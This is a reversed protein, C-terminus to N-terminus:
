YKSFVGSMGCTLTRHSFRGYLSVSLKGNDLFGLRINFNGTQDWGCDTASAYKFTKLKADLTLDNSSVRCMRSLVTDTVVKTKTNITLGMKAVRNFSSGGHRVYCGGDFAISVEDGNVSTKVAGECGYSDWGDPSECWSLSGSWNGANMFAYPHEQIVNQTTTNMDPDEEIPLHISPLDKGCGSLSLLILFSFALSKM